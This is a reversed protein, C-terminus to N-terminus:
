WRALPTLYPHERGSFDFKLPPDYHFLGVGACNIEEQPEGFAARVSADDLIFNGTVPHWCADPADAACGTEGALPPNGFVRGNHGNVAAFQYEGSLNLNFVVDVVMFSQGREPRRFTGVAMMREVEAGPVETFMTSFSLAGIGSRWNLRRANEAFCQYFPTGFPNLAAIDIRAAKPAAFAAALVAAALLGGAGFRIGPLLAWGVFLPFFVVPMFYRLEAGVTVVSPAGPNMYGFHEPALGAAVAVALTSLMAASPFMAAASHRLGESVELPPPTKRRLSSDFVAATRWAMAATFVTWIVAEAPNRTAANWHHRALAGFARLSKEASFESPARWNELGVLAPLGKIAVGLVFGAALLAAFKAARRRAMKGTWALLVAVAGMPAVFWPAIFFDSAAVLALLVFLWASSGVPLPAGQKKGGSELIRLSLWLLWPLAAWAGYHFIPPLQAHFIDAGRWAVTLFPLSHLLLVAFRRAPSKGFLFDCVLIWGVASLAAQLLPTLFIAAAFSAGLAALAYQILLDPFYYPATGTSARGEGDERLFLERFHVRPSATDVNFMLRPDMTGDAFGGLMALWALVLTLVGLAPFLRVSHGGREAAPAPASIQPSSKAAKRKKRAM